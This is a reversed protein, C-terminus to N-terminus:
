FLASSNRAQPSQLQERLWLNEALHRLGHQLKEPLGSPSLMALAAHVLERVLTSATPVHTRGQMV